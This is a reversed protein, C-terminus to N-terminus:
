TDTICDFIPSRSFLSIGINIRCCIVTYFNSKQRDTLLLMQQNIKRVFNPLSECGYIFKLMIISTIVYNQSLIQIKKEIQIPPDLRYIMRDVLNLRICTKLKSIKINCDNKIIRTCITVRPIKKLMDSFKKEHFSIYNLIRM